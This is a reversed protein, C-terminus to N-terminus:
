DLRKRPQPFNKPYKAAVTLTNDYFGQTPGEGLILLDKNENDIHVSSSMDVRFVVVNKGISGDTLLFESRSDFGIGYCSYKYKELDANENLEVSEM